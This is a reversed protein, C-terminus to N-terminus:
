AAGDNNKTNPGHGRWWNADLEVRLADLVEPDFLRGHPSEIYALRGQNVLDHIRAPGVRLRKAAEAAKLLNGFIPAPKVRM